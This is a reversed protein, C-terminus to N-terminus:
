PERRCMRAAEGLLTRDAESLSGATVRGLAGAARVREVVCRCATRCVAANGSQRTCDAACQAVPNPGVVAALASLAGFLVV